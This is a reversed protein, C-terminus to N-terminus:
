SMQRITPISCKIWAEIARNAYALNTKSMSVEQEQQGVHDGYSFAGIVSSIWLLLAAVYLWPNGLMDKEEDLDAAVCIQARVRHHHHRRKEFLFWWLWRWFQDHREDTM